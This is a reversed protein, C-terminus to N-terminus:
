GAQRREQSVAILRGGVEDVRGTAILIGLAGSLDRPSIASPAVDMHDAVLTALSRTVVGGATAGVSATIAAELAARDVVAGREVARLARGQGEGGAQSM